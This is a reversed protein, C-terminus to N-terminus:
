KLNADLIRSDPSMLIIHDEKFRLGRYIKQLLERRAKDLYFEFFQEPKEKNLIRWFLSKINPYPYKTLIISNCMEGPFDVGRSCKTTFLIDMEGSKFRDVERNTKDKDQMEILRDKTILNDLNYEAKELETPLDDFSNIHVLTPTKSNAVCSSFARLYQQRTIFGAKFNEYKCNKEMGTRYKVITGPPTTEAEIIKFKDLGYIDKLVKESHLTGSMLVLVNTSDILEKFRGAINITVLEAYINNRREEREEFNGFLSAQGQKTKTEEGVKYFSVYTQTLFDEFSKVIEVVSNYYSNEEDEALHVNELIMEVLKNIKSGAIKEINGGKSFDDELLIENLEFIIKKIAERDKPEEPYLNSLSSLLRSLNIKKEQAFNDLFEDCEDIVDIETKPKRGLALEILYKQSNFIMVDSETYADYQDYYGCGRQRQYVAYEKGTITTYKKKKAGELGKANLDAPLIPGWYPCAPAISMRRVDAISSFDEKEVAKNMDVYKKIENMNKDRLEIICPLQLDDCREGSFPCRFNNRGKIVGIKLKSNDKKLIFKKKTYDKEYQEQLSKIPVVIASRNFHRALNLAIASKGSGCVGKIFIVKYGDGISKLIEAVVDAQTKGNSFKIPELKEGSYDFLGDGISNESEKRQFLSWM